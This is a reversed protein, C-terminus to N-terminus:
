EDEISKFFGLIHLIRLILIISYFYSFFRVFLKRKKIFESKLIQKTKIQYM